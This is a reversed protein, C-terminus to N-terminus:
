EESLSKKSLKEWEAYAEPYEKKSNELMEKDGIAAAMDLAYMLNIREEAREDVQKREKM